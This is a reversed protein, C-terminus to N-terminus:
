LGLLRLFESELFDATPRELRTFVGDGSNDLLVQQVSPGYLLYLNGRLRVARHKNYLREGPRLRIALGRNFKEDTRVNGQRLPILFARPIVTRRGPAVQLVARRDRPSPRNLLFRTLSTPRFRGTIRTQLSAPNAQKSVYLRPRNGTPSLYNAPFSVQRRVRRAAETRQRKATTNLARSASRKVRDDLTAIENLSQLGTIEVTGVM